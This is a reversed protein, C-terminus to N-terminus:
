ACSEGNEGGRLQHKGASMTAPKRTQHTQVKSWPGRSGGGKLWTATTQVCMQEGSVCARSVVSSPSMASYRETLARDTVKNIIDITTSSSSWGCRELTQAKSNTGRSLERVQTGEQARKREEVNDNRAVATNQGGLFAGAAM